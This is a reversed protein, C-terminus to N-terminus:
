AGNKRVIPMSLHEYSLMTTFCELLDKKLQFFLKRGHSFSNVCNNLKKNTIVLNTSLHM